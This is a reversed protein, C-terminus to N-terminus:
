KKTYILNSNSILHRDSSNVVVEKIHHEDIGTYQDFYAQLREQWNGSHCIYNIKQYVPLDAPQQHVIDRIETITKSSLNNFNDINMVYAAGLKNSLGNSQIDYKEFIVYGNKLINAIYGNFKNKGLLLTHIKDRNKDYFAKKELSLQFNRHSTHKESSNASDKKSDNHGFPLFIYEPDIVEFNKSSDDTYLNLFDDIEELKWGEFFGLPINDLNINPKQQIYDSLDQIFDQYNYEIDYKNTELNLRKYKLSEINGSKTTNFYTIIPYIENEDANNNKLQKLKESFIIFIYKDINGEEEPLVIVTESTNKIMHKSYVILQTLCQKLQDKYDDFSSFVITQNEDINEKKRKLNDLLSNVYLYENKLKNFDDCEDIRKRITKLAKKFSNILHDIYNDSPGEYSIREERYNSFVDKLDNDYCLVYIISDCLDNQSVSLLNASDGSYCVFRILKFKVFDDIVTDLMNRVDKNSNFIEELQQKYVAEFEKRSKKDFCQVVHEFDLSEFEGFYNIKKLDKYTM